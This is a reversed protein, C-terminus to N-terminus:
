CGWYVFGEGASSSLKEDLNTRSMTEAADLRTSMMTSTSSTFPFIPECEDAIGSLM